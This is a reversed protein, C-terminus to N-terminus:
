GVFSIVILGSGKGRQLRVQRLPIFAGQHNGILGADKGVSVQGEEVLTAVLVQSHHRLLPRITPQMQQLLLEM